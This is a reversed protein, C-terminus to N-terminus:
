EIDFIENVEKQYEEIAPRIISSKVGEINGVREIGFKELFSYFAVVDSEEIEEEVFLDFEDYNHSIYPALHLSCFQLFSRFNKALTLVGGEDGFVVIPCDEFNQHTEKRYFGLLSGSHTAQGFVIFQNKYQLLKDASIWHQIVDSSNFSLEFGDYVFMEENFYGEVFKTFLPNSNTQKFNNLFLQAKM